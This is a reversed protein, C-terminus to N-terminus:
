VAGATEGHQQGREDGSAAIRRQVRMGL